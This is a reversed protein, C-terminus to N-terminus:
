GIKLLGNVLTKAGGIDLLYAAAAGGGLGFTALTGAVAGAPSSLPIPAEQSSSPESMYTSIFNDIKDTLDQYLFGCSSKFGQLTTKIKSLVEEDQKGKKKLHQCYEKTLLFCTTLPTNINHKSVNKKLKEIFNSYSNTYSSANYTESLENFGHHGTLINAVVSGRTSKLNSINYGMDKMFKGLGWSGTDTLTQQAWGGHEQRIKCKFYLYGLGWFVFPVVGLFIRACEKPDDNSDSWNSNRYTSQYVSQAIGNNNIDTNSYYGLFGPGLGNALARILGGLDIRSFNSSFVGNLEPLQELAKVLSDHKGLGGCGNGGFGGGVLALWDIAEKLNTPPDTLSNKGTTM